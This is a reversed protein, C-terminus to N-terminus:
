DDTGGMNLRCIVADCKFREQRIWGDLRCIIIGVADHEVAPHRYLLAEQRRMDM